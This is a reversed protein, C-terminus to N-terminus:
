RTQQQADKELAEQVARRNEIERARWEEDSITPNEYTERFASDYPVKEDRSEWVDASSPRGPGYKNWERRRYHDRINEEKRPGSAARNRMCFWFDDWHESCTRVTGARYISHFQSGVGQCYFAADFAQRCSMTTPLLSESLPDLPPPREPNEPAQATNTPTTSRVTDTDRRTSTPTDNSPSFPSPLSSALHDSPTASSQSTSSGGWISGWLSSSSSPKVSEATKPAAIAAPRSPEAPRSRSGGGFESQIQAMFKAIEPDGYDNEPGKAPSPTAAASTKTKDDNSAKSPEPTAWLWGM